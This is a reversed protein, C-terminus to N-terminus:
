REATFFATSSFVRSPTGNFSEGSMRSTRLPYVLVYEGGDVSAFVEREILAGNVKSDKREATLAHLRL